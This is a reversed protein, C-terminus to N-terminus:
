QQCRNLYKGSCAPSVIQYDVGERELRHCVQDFAGDAIRAQHLIRGQRDVLIWPM